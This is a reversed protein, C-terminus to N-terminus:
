SKRYKLPLMKLKKKNKLDIYIKLKLGSDLM